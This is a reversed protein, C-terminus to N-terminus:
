WIPLWVDPERRPSLGMNQEGSTANLAYIASYSHCYVIGDAFHSSEDIGEKPSFSWIQEGSSSNLACLATPPPASNIDHPVDLFRRIYVAGGGFSPSEHGGHYNWGLNKKWLQVGTNSDLAVVFYDSGPYAGLYVKGDPDVAYFQMEGSYYVWKEEGTSANLCYLKNLAGYQESRAAIYIMTNSIITPGGLATDTFNWLEVGKNTLAYLTDITHVTSFPDDEGPTDYRESELAYVRDGVVTPSWWIGAEYTAHKQATFNWLELPVVSTNFGSIVSGPTTEGSAISPMLM